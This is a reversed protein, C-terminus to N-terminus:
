GALSITSLRIPTLNMSKSIVNKFFYYNKLLAWFHIEDKIKVNFHVVTEAARKFLSM